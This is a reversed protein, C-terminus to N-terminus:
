RYYWLGRFWYRVVDDAEFTVTIPEKFASEDVGAKKMATLLNNDPGITGGITSIDMTPLQTELTKQLREVKAAPPSKKYATFFQALILAAKKAQVETPKLTVSM